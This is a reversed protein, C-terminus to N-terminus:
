VVQWAIPSAFRALARFKRYSAIWEADDHFPEYLVNGWLIENIRTGHLM